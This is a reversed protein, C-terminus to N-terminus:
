CLRSLLLCNSQPGSVGNLHISQIVFQFVLSVAHSRASIDVLSVINAHCPSKHRTLFSFYFIGPQRFFKIFPLGHNDIGAKPLGTISQATKLAECGALTILLVALDQKGSLLSSLVYSAAFHLCSHQSFWLNALSSGTAVLLWMEQIGFITSWPLILHAGVCPLFVMVPSQYLLLYSSVWALWSIRRHWQSTFPTAFTCYDWHIHLHTELILSWAQLFWLKSIHALFISCSHAPSCNHALKNKQGVNREDNRTTRQWSFILSQHIDRRQHCFVSNHSFM